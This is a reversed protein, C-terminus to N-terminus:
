GRSQLESTHEESRGLLHHLQGRHARQAPAIGGEVDTQAAPLGAVGDPQQGGVDAAGLDVLGAATVVASLAGASGPEHRLSGPSAGGQSPRPRHREPGPSPTPPTRTSPSSEPSPGSGAAASSPPAGPGRARSVVTRTDNPSTSSRM